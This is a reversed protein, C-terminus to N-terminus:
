YRFEEQDRSDTSQAHRHCLLEKEFSGGHMILTSDRDDHLIINPHGSPCPEPKLSSPLPWETESSLRPSVFPSIFKVEEFPDHNPHPEEMPSDLHTDFATKGLSKVLAGM